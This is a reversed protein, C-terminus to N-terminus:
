GASTPHRERGPVYPSEERGPSRRGVLVFYGLALVFLVLSTWVNLRLGLLDDYEVTDIRLNEIWARGACYLMVYLAFVRGHGLRLRRELLLIVAIAALNWLCEYLFTPHFTAFEEFGPPRHDADIELGWPRDTPRGFLEQNFWNGWRGLAQALLLSPAVVDALVRLRLGERRAYLWAGLVGGAIAGWIALGGQWVKLADLPDRGEGFYLQHDSIVHYVRAGILGAPVAWLALDGIQGEEGGRAVWRRNSFWVALFVGALICLAYARLPVPGLHWVGEDPSPIFLPVLVATV